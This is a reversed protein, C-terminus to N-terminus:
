SAMKGSVAGNCAIRIIQADRGKLRSHSDSSMNITAEGPGHCSQVPKELVRALSIWLLLNPRLTGGAPHMAVLVQTQPQPKNWLAGASEKLPSGEQGTHAGQTSCKGRILENIKWIM